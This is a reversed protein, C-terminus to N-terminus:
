SVSQSTAYWAFVTTAVIALTVLWLTASRWWRRRPPPPYTQWDEVPWRRPPLEAMCILCFGEPSWVHQGDEDCPLHQRRQGHQLYSM